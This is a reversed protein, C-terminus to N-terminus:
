RDVVQHLHRSRSHDKQLSITDPSGSFAGCCVRALGGWRARYATLLDSVFFVHASAAKAHQKFAREIGPLAKALDLANM